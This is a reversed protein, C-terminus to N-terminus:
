SYTGRLSPIVHKLVTYFCNLLTKLKDESVAAALTQPYHLKIVVSECQPGVGLQIFQGSVPQVWNRILKGFNPIQSCKTWCVIFAAFLYKFVRCMQLVYEFATRLM